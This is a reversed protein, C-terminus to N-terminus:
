NSFAVDIKHIALDLTSVDVTCIVDSGTVSCTTRPRSSLFRRWPAPTPTTVRVKVVYTSSVSELVTRVKAHSTRVLITTSGAIGGARSRTQVIPLLASTGSRAVTIGPQRVMVAGDSQARIVAGSVYRLSTGQGSRYVVPQVSVNESFPESADSTRDSDTSDSEEDIWVEFETADGIEISADALKIETARTPARQQTMDEVNEALVEFAREANNIREVDRTEELGGLGFVYTMSIATIIISFVLVYGLAESLARRDAFLDSM